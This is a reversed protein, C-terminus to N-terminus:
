RPTTAGGSPRSVFRCVTDADPDTWYVARDDAALVGPHRLGALVTEAPGGAAPMRRLRGGFEEAWWVWGGGSAAYAGGNPILEFTDPRGRGDRGTRRLPGQTQTWYMWRDVPVLWCEPRVEAVTGVPGGTGRKWKLRGPDGAETWWVRGRDVRLAQPAELHDMFVISRPAATRRRRIRGGGYEVWWVEGDAIDLQGPSEQGPEWDEAAGGAKPVRRVLGTDFETWYVHTADVACFFAYRAVGTALTRRDSGDKRCCRIAGGGDRETWYLRDADQALGYPHRLGHRHAALIEPRPGCAALLPLLLLM